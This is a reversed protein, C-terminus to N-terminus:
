AEGAWLGPCYNRRFRQVSTSWNMPPHEVLFPFLRCAKLRIRCQRQQRIQQWHEINFHDGNLHSLIQVDIPAFILEFIELLKQAGQNTVIYGDTGCGNVIPLCFNSESTIEFVSISHYSPVIRNNVFIIDIDTLTKGLSDVPPRGTLVADDELILAFKVNKEVIEHWVNIHSSLCGSDGPSANFQINKAALDIESGSTGRPELSTIGLQLANAFLRSFRNQHQPITIIFVPYEAKEFLQDRISFSYNNRIATSITKSVSREYRLRSAIREKILFHTEIDNISSAFQDYLHIVDALPLSSYSYTAYLMLYQYIANAQNGISRQACNKLFEIALNSNGMALEEFGVFQNDSTIFM